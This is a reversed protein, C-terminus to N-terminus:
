TAVKPRKISSPAIVDHDLMANEIQRAGAIILPALRGILREDSMQVSLALSLSGLISRGTDFIPSAIGLRGSDVESKSTAFGARRLAALTARFESWSNGLGAHAIEKANQAFLAKLKRPPIHALIIKSTAGRYLPMLRGREYSVPEQRGRGVVQHVCMVKNHFLRCLLMTSGEAAHDILNNMVSRAANLMPDCIQLQRDLQIIAPGLTYSAGTAPTILGVNKLYRFYRYATTASVGIREAALEVTWEHKDVTFLELVSLLRGASGDPHLGDRRFSKAKQRAIPMHSSILM